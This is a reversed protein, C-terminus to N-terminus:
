YEVSELECYKKNVWMKGEEFAGYLLSTNLRFWLQQEFWDSEKNIIINSDTPHCFQVSWAHVLTDKEIPDTQAQTLTGERHWDDLFEDVESEDFHGDLSDVINRAIFDLKFQVVWEKDIYNPLDKFKINTNATVSELARPEIKIEMM